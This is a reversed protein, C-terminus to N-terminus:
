NSYLNTWFKGWLKPNGVYTYGYNKTALDHRSKFINFKENEFTAFSFKLTLKSPKIHKLIARFNRYGIYSYIAQYFM